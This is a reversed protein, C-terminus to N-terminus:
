QHIDVVDLTPPPGDHDLAQARSALTIDSQILPPGFHAAGISKELGAQIEPLARALDDRLPQVTSASLVRDLLAKLDLEEASLSPMTNTEKMLSM